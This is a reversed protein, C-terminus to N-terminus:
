MTANEINNHLNTLSNIKYEYSYSSDKLYKSPFGFSIHCSWNLSKARHSLDQPIFVINGPSLTRSPLNEFDFTKNGYLMAVCVNTDDVHFNFGTGSPPSIYMHATTQNGLFDCAKTIAGGWMELGKVIVTHGTALAGSIRKMESIHNNSRDYNEYVGKRVVYFLGKEILNANTLITNIESVPIVCENDKFLIDKLGQYSLSDQNM